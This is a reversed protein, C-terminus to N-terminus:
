REREASKRPATRRPEQKPQNKLKERVSQKKEREERHTAAALDMLSISKGEKVQAELATHLGRDRYPNSSLIIRM